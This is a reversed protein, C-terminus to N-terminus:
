YWYATPNKLYKEYRAEGCKELFVWMKHPISKILAVM